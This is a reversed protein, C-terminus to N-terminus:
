DSRLVLNPAIRIAALTQRVSALLVLLAACVAAVLTSWLALPAQQVFSSLYHQAGFLAFPLGILTGVAIVTLCDRLILQAIDRPMAGYLKRLVIERERRKVSYASLVYIGFGAIALAICTAATLLKALQADEAYNAAFFSGAKNMRLEENPFHQQWLTEVAHEVAQMDRDIRLSLVRVNNSLRYATAVPAEHLSEHLLDPAVGIIELQETTGKSDITAILIQGIAAQVSAFGFDRVASANLVIVATNTNDLQANFLRGSVAGLNYVEFFETSVAKFHVSVEPKGPRSFGALASIQHRGIADGAAAVGSVGPLRALADRFARGAPEVTSHSDIVLLPATDFGPNANSAFYTQYSVVMTIGALGVAVAFQLVTMSWRLRVGHPLETTTRGALATAASVRLAIWAPQICTLVGVLLSLILSLVLSNASLLSGLDREVLESFLPFFLWALMLGLTTALLSVLMSEAMMQLIVRRGSAGLLKRLAIERQRRLVRVSALNIYNIAALSLILVAVMALGLVNNRNGRQGSFPQGVVDRDFYSDLLPTLRIEMVSRKGLQQRQEAQLRETLISHDVAIQLFQTIATPSDGSKLKILIRGWNGDMKSLNARDQESTLASSEGVLARYPMTTNTAPNPIVALVQLVHNDVLVSKGIASTNGFWKQAVDQTLALGDPRSLAQKVDGSIATIGLMQAFNSSVHMLEEHQTQNQIRVAYNDIKSIASADLVAPNQRALAFLGLPGIEFWPARPDLNFRQKLVYVNKADPVQANYNFSYRVFSLLLICAAFGVSLGFIVVASYAPEQILLRFGIKFDRLKM